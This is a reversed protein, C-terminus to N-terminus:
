KPSSCLHLTYMCLHRHPLRKQCCLARRLNRRQTYVEAARQSLVCYNKGPNKTTHIRLASEVHSNTASGRWGPGRLAKEFMARIKSSGLRQAAGEAHRPLASPQVPCFAVLIDTLDYRKPKTTVDPAERSVDM